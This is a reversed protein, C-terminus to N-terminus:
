RREIRLKRDAHVELRSVRVELVRVERYANLINGIYDVYKGSISGIDELYAGSISGIHDRDAGSPNGIAIGDNEWYAGSTTGILRQRVGTVGSISGVYDREFRERSVGSINGIHERHTGSIM